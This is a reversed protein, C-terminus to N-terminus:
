EFHLSIEAILDGIAQDMIATHFDQVATNMFGAVFEPHAKAYGEGFKEDIVSVAKNFYAEATYGAQRVWYSPTLSGSM